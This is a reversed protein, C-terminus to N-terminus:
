LVTVIDATQFMSLMKTGFRAFNPPMDACMERKTESMERHRVEVPQVQANSPLLVIPYPRTAWVLCKRLRKKWPSVRLMDILIYTLWIVIM